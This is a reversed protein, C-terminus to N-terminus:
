KCKKIRDWWADAIQYLRSPTKADSKMSNCKHCIIWINDITYGKDNDIRDVTPSNDVSAGGSIMTTNCCPCCHTKLMVLEDITIDTRVGSRTFMGNICTGAWKRITRGGIKLKKKRKIRKRGLTGLKISV